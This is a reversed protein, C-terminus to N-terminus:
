IADLGLKQIDAQTDADMIYAQNDTEFTKVLRPHKDIFARPVMGPIKLIDDIVKKSFLVPNGRQGNTMPLIIEQDSSRDM